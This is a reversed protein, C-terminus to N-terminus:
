RVALAYEALPVTEGNVMGSLRLRYEGAPLLERPLLVSLMGTDGSVTLGEGQWFVTGAHADWIQLRYEPRPPEGVALILHVLSAAAPVAVSM